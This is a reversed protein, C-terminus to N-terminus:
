SRPAEGCATYLGGLLAEELALAQRRYAAVATSSWRGNVALRDHRCMFAAHVLDLYRRRLANRPHQVFSFGPREDALDDVVSGLDVDPQLGLMLRGSLAEASSIFHNALGRFQTMTISFTDGHSVTQADDSWRLFFSPPDGRAVVKGYSRLARLEDFPSKAGIVMYKRRVKDLHQRQGLRARQPLGIHPYAHLPIAYELLILRQIYILGSLTSTFQKARKFGTAETNLGFIGSFYVLLTSSPRGDTYQETCITVSLQFLLELM